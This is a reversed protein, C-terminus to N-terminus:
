HRADTKERLVSLGNFLRRGLPRDHTTNHYLFPKSPILLRGDPLMSITCGCEHNLRISNCLRGDLRDIILVVHKDAEFESKNRPYGLAAVGYINRRSVCLVSNVQVDEGFHDRLSSQWVIRGGNKTSKLCVIEHKLSSYILGDPSVNPSASSSGTLNLQWLLKGTIASFAYFIGSKDSCYVEKCDFSIAPSTDCGAGMPTKFILKFQDLEGLSRELRMGYFFGGAGEAGSAAIFITGSQPDIAPVNKAVVGIGLFRKLAQECYGEAVGISRMKETFNQRQEPSPMHEHVVGFKMVRSPLALPRSIPLGSHVDFVALSGDIGLVVPNENPLFAVASTEHPWSTKWILEGGASWHSLCMGDAVIVTGSSTIGPSTLSPAVHIGSHWRCKGSNDFCWLCGRSESPENLTSIFILNNQNYCAVTAAPTNSLEVWDVEFDDFGPIDVYDSNLRDAHRSRWM